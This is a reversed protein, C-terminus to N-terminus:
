GLIAQINQMLNPTIPKPFCAVFGAKKADRAVSPSYYATLAIAPVTATQPNTQIAKLVQWGDMEPLALDLVALHYEHQQLLKLAQEGSEAVDVTLKHYELIQRLVDWSAPDDEVILIRQQSM